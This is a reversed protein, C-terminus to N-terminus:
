NIFFFLHKNQLDFVLYRTKPSCVICQTFITITQSIHRLSGFTGSKDSGITGTHQIDIERQSENHVVVSGGEVVTVNFHIDTPDHIYVHVESTGDHRIEASAFGLSSVLCIVALAMLTTVNTM